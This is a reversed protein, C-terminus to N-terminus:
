YGGYRSGSVVMRHFTESLEPESVKHVWKASNMSRSDTNPFLWAVKPDRQLGQVKMTIAFPGRIGQKKFLKDIQDLHDALKEKFEHVTVREHGDYAFPFAVLSSVLWDDGVFFRCIPRGKDDHQVTEFGDQCGSFVQFAGHWQRWGSPQMPGDRGSFGTRDQEFHEGPVIAIHLTVAHSPMSPDRSAMVGDERAILRDAVAQYEAFTTFMARVKDRSLPTNQAGTRIHFAGSAKAQYPRMRLDPIDIDLIYGGDVPIPNVVLGIPSPDIGDLLISQLQRRREDADGDYPEFREFRHDKGERVGVYVHAANANLFGVVSQILLAKSRDEKLDIRSKFDVTQGETIAGSQIGEITL